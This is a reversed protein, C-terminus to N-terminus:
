LIQHDFKIAIVETDPKIQVRCSPHDVPLGNVSVSFTTGLFLSMAIERVNINEQRIKMFLEAPETTQQAIIFCDNGKLEKFTM